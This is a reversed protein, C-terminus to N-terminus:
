VPFPNLFNLSFPWSIQGLPKAVPHTPLKFFAFRRHRITTRRGLLRLEVVLGDFLREAIRNRM